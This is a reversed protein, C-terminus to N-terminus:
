ENRALLRLGDLVHAFKRRAREIVLSQAADKQVKQQWQKPSMKLEGSKHKIDDVKLKQKRKDAAQTFKVSMREIIDLARSYKGMRFECDRVHAIHDANALLGSQRAASLLQTLTGMDITCDPHVKRPDVPSWADHPKNDSEEDPAVTQEDALTSLDESEAGYPAVPQKDVLTDSGELEAGDSLCRVDEASVKAVLRLLGGDGALKLLMERPVPRTREGTLVLTLLYADATQEASEIRVLQRQKDRVYYITFPRIDAASGVPESDFYREVVLDRVDVTEAAEYEAQFGDPLQTIRM